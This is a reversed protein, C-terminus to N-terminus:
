SKDYNISQQGFQKKKAKGKVKKGKKRGQGPLAIAASQKSSTQKVARKDQILEKNLNSMQIIKKDKNALDDELKKLRRITVEEGKIPNLSLIVRDADDGQNYFSGFGNKKRNGFCKKIVEPTFGFVESTFVFFYYVFSFIVVAGTAYTIMDRQWAYRNEEVLAGNVSENFRDSEFMVGALCVFISCALLVQEVTNYDFFYERQKRIKRKSMGAAKNINKVSQKKKGMGRKAGTSASDQNLFRKVKNNISTHLEVGEDVKAKHDMLIQDRQATSMYPQNKVQLVYAVFLVFLIFAFQFGPNARFMLGASAIGCKRGLIYLMWYMKGPKFHYYMKHFRTRMHYAKMDCDKVGEEDIGRARLIQDIKILKKNGPWNIIIFIILPLGLTYVCLAVMAPLVLKDQLHRPDGCRCLGGACELSTFGTYTWGDDPDAPSCNFIQLARLTLMLYMYYMSLMFTGFLKSIFFKDIARRLICVQFFGHCSFSLLLIVLTVLPLILTMGFKMRYDFEPMLCEPAVIDINLNFFDLFNFLQLLYVPWRIDANRFMALVQFYDVGISVFALNFNQMDLVYMIACFMIVGAIFGGIVLWMNDPCEECKGNIKHYKFQTCKSCRTAGPDCQCVGYEENTNTNTHKVCTMCDEPNLYTCQEGVAAKNLDVGKCNKQLASLKAEDRLCAKLCTYSKDKWSPPCQCIAQIAKACAVGSTRTRCQITTNCFLSTNSFPKIAAECRENQYEYGLACKNGGLCAEKPKCGVIGLCTERKHITAYAYQDILIADLVPDFLREPPCARIRGAKKPLGAARNYDDTEKATIDDTDVTNAVKPRGGSIDMESMWYSSFAIPPKYTPSRCLGGVPCKSCLEGPNARGWYFTQTGNEVHYDSPLCVSRLVSREVSELIPMSKSWQDAVFLTVNATGVVGKQATCSIYPFGDKPHRENWLANKCIKDNVYVITPSPTGGFNQGHIELTSGSADYPNPSGATVEPERFNFPVSDIQGAVNITLTLDEGYGIPGRVVLREHTHEFCFTGNDFCSTDGRNVSTLSGDFAIFTPNTPDFDWLPNAGTIKVSIARPNVGFNKGSLILPYQELCRRAYLNVNERQKEPSVGEIRAAWQVASEFRGPQCGDTPAKLLIPNLIPPSFSVVDKKNVMPISIGSFTPHVAIRLNAGQGPPSLFTIKTLVHYNFDTNDVEYKLIDKKLVPVPPYIGDVDVLYISPCGSTTTGFNSGVISIKVGGRTPLAHENGSINVNIIMPYNSAGSHLDSGTQLLNRGNIYLSALAAGKLRRRGKSQCLRRARGSNMDYQQAISSIRRSEETSYKGGACESQFAHSLTVISIAIEVNLVSRTWGSVLSFAKDQSNEIAGLAEDYLSSNLANHLGGAKKVMDLVRANMTKNKYIIGTYISIQDDTAQGAKYAALANVKADQTVMTSEQNAIIVVPTSGASKIEAMTCVIKKYSTSKVTCPTNGITVTTQSIMYPETGFNFGLIEIDWGGRSPRWLPRVVDVVSPKYYRIAINSNLQSTQDVSRVQIYLPTAGNGPPVSIILKSHPTSADQVTKVSKSAILGVAKGLDGYNRGTLQINLGKTPIMTKSDIIASVVPAQYKIYGPDSRYSLYEVRVGVKSGQGSPVVCDFEVEGASSSYVVSSAEISCLKEESKIDGIYVFTNQPTQGNTPTGCHKCNISIIAKTSSTSGLTSFETVDSSSGGVIEKQTLRQILPTKLNFGKAESTVGGRSITINGKDGAYVFVVLDSNSRTSQDWAQIGTDVFSTIANGIKQPLPNSGGNSDILNLNIKYSERPRPGLTKSGFNSGYVKVLLLQANNPHDQVTIQSIVPVDYSWYVINSTQITGSKSTVRVQVELKTAQMGSLLEPVDFALIDFGNNTTRTLAPDSVPIIVYYNPVGATIAGFWIERSSASDQLGSDSTNLIIKERSLESGLTSSTAPSISHITPSAYSTTKGLISSQSRVTVRWYLKSGTGPVTLCNIKTHSAVVCDKAVYEQGSEGYTVLAGTPYPGFNLGGIEIAQGGNTSALSSGLGSLEHVEPIGYSSTPSRSLQDGIVLSWGHKRGAGQNMRCIVKVHPIVVECKLATFQETATGYSGAVPNWTVNGPGFNEGDIIAYEYFTTKKNPLSPVEVELFGRTDSDDLPKGTTRKVGFLAPQAYYGNFQGVNSTQEAIDVRYRFDKGVGPSTECEIRRQAQEVNCALGEFSNQVVDNWYAVLDIYITGTPGFYDGHIYFKDGGRSSGGIAGPGTIRSIVPKEYRTTGSSPASQQGDINVQWNFDKGVGVISTCHVKDHATKVECDALRFVIGRANKYITTPSKANKTATGSYKCGELISNKKTHPGFNNGNIVITEGGYTSMVNSTASSDKIVSIDTISPTIYSTTVSAPSVESQWTHAFAGVRWQHFVGSGAVSQCAIATNATKIICSQACYGSGGSGYEADVTIGAPAGMNTGYIIVAEDGKTRLPAASISTINPTTYSIRDKSKASGSSNGSIALKVQMNAGFGEQTLCEIVTNRHAVSCSRATFITINNGVDVNNSYTVTVHPLNGTILGFDTGIIRISDAGNTRITGSATLVEVASISVDDIDDVQIKVSTTATLKVSYDPDVVGRDEVLLQLTYVQTREFDVSSGNVVVIKAGRNSTSVLAFAGFENGGAISFHLYDAVDEDIAGLAGVEFGNGANEKLSMDASPTTFIPAENVNILAITLTATDKLGAADTVTITIANTPDSEFNLLTKVIINGTSSDVNFLNSGSISYNLSDGIDQDVGNAIGIVTNLPTNENVEFTADIITPAENVDVVEVYIFESDTLRNYYGVTNGNVVIPSSGTDTCVVPLIYGVRGKLLDDGTFCFTAYFDSKPCSEGIPSNSNSITVCEGEYSWAKNPQTPQVGKDYSFTEIRKLGNNWATVLEAKTALRWGNKSCLRHAGGWTHFNFNEKDNAKWEEQDHVRCVGSIPDPAGLTATNGSNDCRIEENSNVLSEYDLNLNTTLKIEGNADVDFPTNTITNGNPSSDRKAFEFKVSECYNATCAAAVKGGDNCVALNESLAIACAPTRDKTADVDFCKLYNTVISNVDSNEDISFIQKADMFPPTVSTTVSVKMEVINSVLGKFNTDCEGGGANVNCDDNKYEKCDTIGYGNFGDNGGDFTCYPVSNDKAQVFVSYTDGQILGTQNLNVQCSKGDIAFIYEVVNGNQTVNVISCTTSGGDKRYIDPDTVSLPPGVTTGVAASSKIRFSEGAFFPKVVPAEDVDKIYVTVDATTCKPIDDKDCAKITVNTIASSGGTALRLAEYNQPTSFTLEGSNLGIAFGNANGQITYELKGWKATLSNHAEDQDYAKVPNPNDISIPNLNSLTRTVLNWNKVRNNWLEPVPVNRMNEPIERYAGANCYGAVTCSFTPADNQDIVNITIDGTDFGGDPDVVKLSINLTQSEEYDIQSVVQLTCSTAQNGAVDISGAGGVKTWQLLQAPIDEDTASITCSPIITNRPSNEAVSCTQSSDIVPPDNIDKITIKVNANYKLDGKDTVEIQYLCPQTKDMTLAEYNITPPSTFTIKEGITDGVEIIVPVGGCNSTTGTTQISKCCGWQTDKTGGDDDDAFRIIQSMATNEDFSIALDSFPSLQPPDNADVVIIEVDVPGNELKEPDQVKVSLLFRVNGNEYDLAGTVKIKGNTEVDFPNQGVIGTFIYTLQASDTEPDSANVRRSLYSDQPTDEPVYYINNAALITPPENKPVVTVTVEATDNMPNDASSDKVLVRLIYNNYPKLKDSDLQTPNFVSLQGSCFSIKIPCPDIAKNNNKCSIVSWILEQQNIAVEPDSAVLPEGIVTNVPSEEEVYRIQENVTPPENVDGISIDFNCKASALVNNSSDKAIAQIQLKYTTTCAEANLRSSIGIQGSTEGITFLSVGDNLADCSTFSNGTCGNPCKSIKYTVTTGSLGNTNATFQWGLPMPKSPDQGESLTEELTAISGVTDSACGNGAAWVLKPKAIGDVCHYHAPCPLQSERHDLHVDGEPVTYYNADAIRRTDGEKCYYKARESDAKLTKWPPCDNQTSSTSGLPCYYGAKCAGSCSRSQLAKSNGYRGIPCESCKKSGDLDAYQGKHCEDCGSQGLSSQFYGKGCNECSSKGENSQYTGKGCDKCDDKSKENQYRGQGCNKCTSQGESNQFKGTECVNCGTNATGTNYQGANCNNCKSASGGSQYQGQECETCGTNGTGSAYQGSGCPKCSSQGSQDTFKGAECSVCEDGTFDNQGQYQGKVCASCSGAPGKNGKTCGIKDCYCYKQSKYKPDGFVSNACNISGSILITGRCPGNRNDACYYVYGNCQCVGGSDRRKLGGNSCHTSSSPAGADVPSVIVALVCLVKMLHFVM